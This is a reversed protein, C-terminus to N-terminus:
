QLSTTWHIAQALKEYTFPKEQFAIRHKEILEKVRSDNPNGSALVVKVKPDFKKLEQYVQMGSMVPMSMDLLVVNIDPYHNKYLDIGEQGSAAMHVSYGSSSLIAQGIERVVQEDDIILVTGKGVVTTAVSTQPKSIAPRKIDCAPFYLIISTGKGPESEIEIQGKHEHVINYVMPMGLGTGQDQEKTTFFPTFINELVEATMGVGCDKILIKWFPHPRKHEPLLIDEAQIKIFLDGGWTEKSKRMFTMAHNANVLLNLLVQEIQGTDALIHTPKEPIDLHLHINKDMSSKFLNLTQDMVETLNCLSFQTKQKKSLTLLQQVMKASKQSANEIIELNKLLIDNTLVGQQLFTKLISVAGLSGTLLNNFDHAIGGALLGTVEMKQARQLQREKKETETIDDIRIIAEQTGEYTLPYITISQHRTTGDQTYSFKKQTIEYSNADIYSHFFDGCAPFLQSVHRGIAAEKELDFALQGQKNMSTVLGTADIGILISPMSDIIDNLYAKTKNLEDLNKVLDPYYSKTKSTAGLGILQNFLEEQRSSDSRKKM